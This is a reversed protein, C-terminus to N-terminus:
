DVLSHILGALSSTLSASHFRIFMRGPLEIECNVPAAQRAAMSDWRVPLFDGSTSIGQDHVSRYKRLWYQFTSKALGASECFQQQTLDGSLYAEVQGFMKQERGHQGTQGAMDEGKNKLSSLINESYTFICKVPPIRM